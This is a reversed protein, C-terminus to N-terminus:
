NLKMTGDPQYLYRFTFYRSKDTAAPQVPADKYYSLIELKAYKGDATRIVLVRGPVPTLLNTTSSYNYWGKGSGTPVALQSPSQDTAFTASAPVTTLEDFTGTCIYAGGQGTRIAGGNVIISTARFGLDWNTTASDTNAMQKGDKLSFLTYKGTGAAPQGTQSNSALTDAALNKITQSQVPQTTVANETQCATLALSSLSSALLIVKTFQM